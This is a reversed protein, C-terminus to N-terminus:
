DEECNAKNDRGCRDCYLKREEKTFFYEWRRFNGVKRCVNRCISLFYTIMASCPEAALLTRHTGRSDFGSTFHIKKYTSKSMEILNRYTTTSRNKTTTNYTPSSLTHSLIPPSWQPIPPHRREPHPIMSSQEGVQQRQWEKTGSKPFRLDFKDVIDLQNTSPVLALLTRFNIYSETTIQCYSANQLSCSSSILSFPCTKDPSTTWTFCTLLPRIVETFYFKWLHKKFNQHTKTQKLVNMVSASGNSHDM